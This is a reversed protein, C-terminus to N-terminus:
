DQPNKNYFCDLEWKLPNSDIYEWIKQYDKEGRIIHDHFSSQFIKQSCNVSKNCIRTTLSKFSCIVDSITPCPSAGATNNSIIIIHIHNPMIVYKDIEITKYRKELTLLQEEAIKGYQTLVTEAPALGQGVIIDSLICKKGRTCITVFYAGNQSYDYEKLRTPKRKPFEMKNKKLVSFIKSKVTLHM